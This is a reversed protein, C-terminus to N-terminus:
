SSKELKYSGVLCIVGLVGIFNNAFPENPIVKLLILGYILLVGFCCLDCILELASYPKREKGKSCATFFRVIKYVIHIGFVLALLFM